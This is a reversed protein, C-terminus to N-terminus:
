LRKARRPRAGFAFAADKKSPSVDAEFEVRQGQLPEGLLKTPATVWVRWGRDDAVLMKLQDGWHSEQTKIAQVVGTVTVAGTPAPSANAPGSEAHAALFATQREFAPAVCALQKETLSGAQRLSGRLAALFKDPRTFRRNHSLMQVVPRHTRCFESLRTFKKRRAAIQRRVKENRKRQWALNSLDFRKSACKWGVTILQGTPGHLLLVGDHFHSGCHDCQSWGGHINAGRQRLDAQVRDRDKDWQSLGAPQLGGGFLNAQVIPPRTNLFELVRFDQPKLHRECFPDERQKTTM